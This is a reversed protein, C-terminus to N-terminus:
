HFSFSAQFSKKVALAVAIQHSTISTEQRKIRVLSDGKIDEERMLFAVAKYKHWAGRNFLKWILKKRCRWNLNTKRDELYEFEEKETVALMRVVPYWIDRVDYFM